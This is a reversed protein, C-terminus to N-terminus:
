EDAADSTYLLCTISGDDSLTDVTIGEVSVIYPGPIIDEPISITTKGLTGVPGASTFRIERLGQDYTMGYVHSTSEVFISKGEVDFQYQVDTLPLLIARYLRRIKHYEPGYKDSAKTKVVVYLVRGTADIELSRDQAFTRGYISHGSKAANSRALDNPYPIESQASAIESSTLLPLGFDM